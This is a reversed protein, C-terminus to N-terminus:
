NKWNPCSDRVLTFVALISTPLRTYKIFNRIKAVCADLMPLECVLLAVANVFMVVRPVQQVLSCMSVHREVRTFVNLMSCWRVRSLGCTHVLANCVHMGMGHTCVYHM